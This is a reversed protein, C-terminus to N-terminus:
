FKEDVGRVLRINSKEVGGKEVGGLGEAERGKVWRRVVWKAQVVTVGTTFVSAINMGAGVLVADPLQVTCLSVRQIDVLGTVFLVNALILLITLNTARPLTLARISPLFQMELLFGVLVFVLSAAGLISHPSSLHKSSGLLFIGLSIGALGFPVVVFCWIYFRYKHAKALVDPRGLMVAIEHGNSLLLAIPIAILFPPLSPYINAKQAIMDPPFLPRPISHLTVFLFPQRSTFIFMGHAAILITLRGQSIGNVVISGQAPNIEFTNGESTVTFTANPLQFKSPASSNAAKISGSAKLGAFIQSFGGVGKCTLADVGKQLLVDVSTVNVGTLIGSLDITTNLDKLTANLVSPVRRLIPLAHHSRARIDPTSLNNSPSSQASALPMTMTSSDSSSSTTSASGSSTGKGFMQLVLNVGEGGLGQGFSTAVGGTTDNFGNSSFIPTAAEAMVANKDEGNLIRQFGGMNSISQGAGDVLGRALGEAAKSASISKLDLMKGMTSNSGLLATAKSQLNAVTGNALFSSTLGYSFDRAVMAVSGGMPTQASSPDQLGLGVAAGQGIGSGAGQAAPGLMASINVMMTSSMLKKQLAPLTGNALFSTTLQYAFNQAIEPAPANADTVPAVAANQLGLSQAAGSGFGSGASVLSPGVMSTLNSSGSMAKNALAQVDVSGLFSSSLAKTFGFSIADANLGGTTNTMARLKLKRAAAAPNMPLALGQAAGEGLGKGANVVASSLQGPSVAGMIKSMDVNSFLAQTLGSGLNGAILPIGTGSPAAIVSKNIGLGTATGGGLGAGLASAAGGAGATLISTNFSGALANSVGFGLNGALKNIGEPKMASTQQVNNSVKLGTTVGRGVGDGLYQAPGALSDATINLLGGAASSFLSTLGGGAAGGLLGSLPSASAGGAAGKAATAGGAGGGALAALGDFFGRARLGVSSKSKETDAALKNLDNSIGQLSQLQHQASVAGLIDAAAKLLAALEEGGGGGGGGGGEGVNLTSISAFSPISIHTTSHDYTHFFSRVHFVGWPLLSLTNIFLLLSVFIVFVNRTWVSARPPHEVNGM